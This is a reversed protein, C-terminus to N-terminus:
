HPQRPSVEGPDPLPTPSAPPAVHALCGALLAAHLGLALLAAM